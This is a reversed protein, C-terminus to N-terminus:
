KMCLVIEVKITNRINSLSILVFPSGPSAGIIFISPSSAIREGFVYLDGPTSLTGAFSKLCAPGSSM